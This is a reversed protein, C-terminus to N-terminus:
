IIEVMKLCKSKNLSAINFNTEDNYNITKCLYSKKQCLKFLIKLTLVFDIKLIWKSM